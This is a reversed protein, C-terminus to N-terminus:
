KKYVGFDISDNFQFEKFKFLQIVGLEDSYEKLTDNDVYYVENDKYKIKDITKTTFIYLKNNKDNIPSRYVKYYDEYKEYFYYYGYEDEVKDIKEYTSDTIDIKNEFKIINNTCNSSTEIDWENNKYIKIGRDFDGIIEISLKEPNIKYQKRNIKDYLYLEDNLVGEIYSDFSIKPYCKIERKKGNTIDIVYMKDFEYTQEYDAVIYYKGIFQSITQNYIDKSFLQISNKNKLDYYGKYNTVFGFDDYDNNFIVNDYQKESYKNDYKDKDYQEISSVFNKLNESKEEIDHYYIYSDNKNCIIDIYQKENIFVPYICKYNKDNFYYIKKIIKEQKNFNDRIQFSYTLNDVKIDFLYIEKNEKQIKKYQENINIVYDEYKLNYNNTIDTRLFLYSIRLFLALLILSIIFKCSKLKM